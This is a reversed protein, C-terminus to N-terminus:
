GLLKRHALKVNDDNVLAYRLTTDIQNHGLIRQVQEIPMGKQIARTALTTRFRHPHIKNMSLGRGIDRLRREVGSITLRMKPNRLTVFLAPNDDTREDIYERLHVKTKYDFYVRREKNGKGYVVCERELFNIDEINLRVLEGVRIGTSLLLDIMAIDRSCNVCKDRLMEISEDSIAEKVVQEGKVKHIKKLPSKVIYDEEELWTFFSSLCRRINDLTINSCNNITTYDALYSRIEAVTITTVPIDIRKIFNNIVRRYYTITQESCGELKKVKLFMNLYEINSNLYEVTNRYILRDNLSKELLMLQNKDLVTEMDNLIEEIRNKM